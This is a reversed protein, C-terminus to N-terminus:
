YLNSFNRFFLKFVLFINFYDFNTLQRGFYYYCLQLICVANQSYFQLDEKHNQLVAPKGAVLQLCAFFAQRFKALNKFASRHLLTSNLPAFNHFGQLDQRSSEFSYKNAFNPTSVASFLGKLTQWCNQILWCNSFSTLVFM